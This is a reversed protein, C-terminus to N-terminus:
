TAVVKGDRLSVNAYWKNPKGGGPGRVSLITGAPIQSATGDFNHFLENSRFFVEEPVDKLLKIMTSKHPIPNGRHTAEVNIYGM